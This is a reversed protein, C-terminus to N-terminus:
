MEMHKLNCKEKRFVCILSKTKDNIEMQKKKKLYM